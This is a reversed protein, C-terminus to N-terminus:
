RGEADLAEEIVAAIRGAPTGPPVFERYRNDRGIVFTFAAHAITYGGRGDPVREYYVKFARAVRRIEAESGTLAVISPHFSRVYRRLLPATDRKPDLTVFLPQVGSARAKLSRLAKGIEALDTPCVDPCFTFGFYLVVVKGRFEALSRKRGQSDRLTFPTGVEATGSMLEAMLRQAESAEREPAQAPAAFVFAAALAAAFRQLARRRRGL